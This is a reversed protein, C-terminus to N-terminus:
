GWRMMYLLKTLLRPNLHQVKGKGRPFTRCKFPEVNFKPLLVKYICYGTLSECCLKSVFM